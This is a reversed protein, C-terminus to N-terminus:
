PAVSRKIELTATLTRNEVAPVIRVANVRAGEPLDPVVFAAGEKRCPHLSLDNHGNGDVISVYVESIQADPSTVTLRRLEVPNEFAFLVHPKGVPLVGM